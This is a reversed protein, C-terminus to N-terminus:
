LVSLLIVFISHLDSRCQTVFQRIALGCNSVSSLPRHELMMFGVLMRLRKMLTWSRVMLQRVCYRKVVILVRFLCDLHSCIWRWRDICTGVRSYLLIGSRTSIMHQPIDHLTFISVDPLLITCQLSNFNRLVAFCSLTDCVLVAWHLVIYYAVHHQM